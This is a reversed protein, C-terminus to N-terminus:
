YTCLACPLRADGRRVAAGADRREGRVSVLVAAGEEEEEASDVCFFDGKRSRMDKAFLHGQAHPPGWEGPCSPTSLLPSTREGAFCLACRLPRGQVGVVPSLRSYHRHHRAYPATDPDLQPQATLCVLQAAGGKVQDTSAAVGVHLTEAGVGCSGRGWVAFVAGGVDLSLGPSSQIVKHKLLALRRHYKDPLDAGGDAYAAFAAGFQAVGGEGLDLSGLVRYFVLLARELSDQFSGVEDEIHPQLLPPVQLMWEHLHKRSARLDDFQSELRDLQDSLSKSDLHRPLDPELASLPFLEMTLPVGVGGNVLQTQAPFSEVLELLSEMTNPVGRIPVTAYYGIELSAVERLQEQVRSFNGQVGLGFSGSDAQLEAQVVARIRDRDAAHRARFKLSAVLDGGYTLSRVFHTGVSSRKDLQRWDPRPRASSALTLTETEYHVKVLIEVVDARSRSDRLYDGLGEINVRGSKIKLSLDGSVGLFDRAEQSDSVMRYRSDTFSRRIVTANRIADEPFIDVGPSDTPIDYTRGLLMPLVYLYITTM